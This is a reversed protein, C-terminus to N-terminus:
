PMLMELISENVTKNVGGSSLVDLLNKPLGFGSKKRHLILDPLIGTYAGKLRAKQENVGIRIEEQLSFVWNVIESNLFPVRCELSNVMSARDVKTLIFEPLYTKFDLYQVRTIPPLDKKYHKKFYWYDDYGDPIGLTSRFKARLREDPVGVLYAYCEVGKLFHKVKLSRFFAGFRGTLNSVLRNNILSKFSFKYNSEYNTFLLYRPYGCFLEDGGDGSLVVKFKERAFRCLEETPFSSLDGFPEDFWAVQNDISLKSHEESVIKLSHDTKFLSSVIAAFNSEDRSPDDFGISFTNIKSRLTTAEAVLVSSDIGGSLFLGIPVDSVLQDRVSSKIKEKLFIEAEKATLKLSGVSSLDINWYAVMKKQKFEINYSVLFGAELKFVEQYMTKPPPIYQYTLFDYLASNDKVLKGSDSYYKQIGKLESSWVLEEDILSYYLPKIGVKDRALFIEGKKLDYIVFAFMGELRLLLGDIGWFKYGQLVVESDSQSAFQAGKDLLENKLQKFNYIEGNVSCVIENDPLCMPQKGSDSLDLISLRKHGMYVFDDYFEGSQDPGRHHLTELADQCKGLQSVSFNAKGFLGCM